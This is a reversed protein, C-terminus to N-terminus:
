INSSEALCNVTRIAQYSFIFKFRKSNFEIESLYNIKPIKPSKFERDHKSVTNNCM